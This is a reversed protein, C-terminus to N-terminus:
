RILTVTGKQFAPDTGKLKYSCQWVFVSTTVPIGNVKGDWGKMPDTTEFVLNGWRDYVQFKFSEVVGFVMARFVDNLQNGNPTFATPVWVGSNCVKQIIDITDKGICNNIDKVTLIYLGAKDVTVRSQMSGTSWNYQSYSNFPAITIKEYQCITDTQKLFNSPPPFINKIEVTDANTCNNIDTVQVWYRGIANTTFTPQTTQDQWHYSIFTGANFTISQGQCLNKDAGLNPLPKPNVVLNTIIVSDCGLQTHLTDKYVGTKIQNAGAVFYSEGECIKINRNTVAKPNVL